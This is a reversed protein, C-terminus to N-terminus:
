HLVCLNKKRSLLSFTSFSLLSFQHQSLTLNISYIYTLHPSPTFVFHTIVSLALALRLSSLFVCLSSSPSLNFMSILAVKSKSHARPPGCTCSLWAFRWRISSHLGLRCPPVTLFLVSSLLLFLWVCGCICIKVLCCLLNVYIPRLTLCLICSPVCACVSSQRSRGPLIQWKRYSTTCHINSVVFCRDGQSFM